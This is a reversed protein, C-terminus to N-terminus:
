KDTLANTYQTFIAQYTGDNKMQRLAQEFEKIYDKPMFKKSFVVYTPWFLKVKTKKRKAAKVIDKNDLLRHKKLYYIMPLYDGIILDTKHSLLMAISQKISNSLLINKFAGKEIANKFRGEGYLYGRRITISLDQIKELNANLSIDAQKRKFLVYQQNILTTEVYHGWQQRRKNKGANFVLDSKGMKTMLLARKWPYFSFNVRGIQTRKAAERIIEVAIGSVTGNEIFQYPPYDLTVAHLERRDQAAFALNMLLSLGGIIIGVYCSQMTLRFPLRIKDRPQKGQSNIKLPERYRISM